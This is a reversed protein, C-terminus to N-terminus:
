RPPGAEGSISLIQHAGSADELAVQIEQALQQSLVVAGGPIRKEDLVVALRTAEKAQEAHGNM